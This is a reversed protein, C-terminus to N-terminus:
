VLSKCYLSILIQYACVEYYGGYRGECKLVHRGMGGCGRSVVRCGWVQKEHGGEVCVLGVGGVTAEMHVSGWGLTGSYFFLHRSLTNTCKCEYLYKYQVTSASIHISTVILIFHKCKIM